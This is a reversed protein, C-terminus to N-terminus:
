AKRLKAGLLGGAGGLIACVVLELVFFGDIHFGGGIAAFLFLTLVAFLVGAGAGKFLAREGRVFLACGLFAAVCKVCWNIATVTSQPLAFNKVFVAAAALALLSFVAGFLAAFFVQKGASKIFERDM